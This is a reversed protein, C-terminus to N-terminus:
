TLSFSSIITAISITVVSIVGAVMMFIIWMIWFDEAKMKAGRENTFKNWHCYIM